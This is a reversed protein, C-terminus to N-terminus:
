SITFASLVTVSRVVPSVHRRQASPMLERPSDTGTVQIAAIGEPKKGLVHTM